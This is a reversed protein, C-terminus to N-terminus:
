DKRHGEKIPRTGVSRGLNGRIDPDVDNDSDCEGKQCDSEPPVKDNIALLTSPVFNHILLFHSKYKFSFSHCIKFQPPDPDQTEVPCYPNFVVTM